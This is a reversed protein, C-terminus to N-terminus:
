RVIIGALANCHPVFRIHQHVIGIQAVDGYPMQKLNRYVQVHAKLMNGLIKGAKGVRGRQGPSWLGMIHGCLCFCSPENFTAWFPIRFGYEQFIITCYNVFAPLNSPDAFGGRDEFWQPHTFHHFTANPILGASQISDLIKHYQQIADKNICGPQPEIRAWEFSFRFSNCGLSKVLQIDYEYKNWFDNSQQFAEVYDKQGFYNKRRMFHTWNSNEDSSNQWVSIAVGKHFVDQWGKPYSTSAQQRKEPEMIHGNGSILDFATSKDGLGATSSNQQLAAGSHLGVCTPFRHGNSQAASKSSAAQSTIDERVFHTSSDEAHRPLRTSVRRRAQSPVRNPGLVFSSHCSCSLLAHYAPRAHSALM